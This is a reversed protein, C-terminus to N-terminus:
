DTLVARAWFFGGVLFVLGGVIWLVKVWSPGRVLTAQAPDAPDYYVTVKDGPGHAGVGSSAGDLGGAFSYRGSEYRRGDVQYVYRFHYSPYGNPYKTSYHLVRKSLIVQGPAEAWTLSAFGVRLFVVGLVVFLLGGALVLLPGHLLESWRGKITM